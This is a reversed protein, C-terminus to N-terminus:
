KVPKALSNIFSIAKYQQNYAYNFVIECDSFESYQEQTMDFSMNIFHPKNKPADTPKKPIDICVGRQPPTKYVIQPSIYFNVLAEAPGNHELKFTLQRIEANYHFDHISCDWGWPKDRFNNDPFQFPPNQIRDVSEKQSDHNFNCCFFFSKIGEIYSM